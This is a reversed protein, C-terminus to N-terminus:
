VGMELLISNSDCCSFKFGRKLCSSLSSTPDGKKTNVTVYIKELKNEICFLIVLSLLKTGIGTRRHNEEIFVEHLYAHGDYIEVSALGIEKGNEDEYTFIKAGPDRHLIYQKLHEM